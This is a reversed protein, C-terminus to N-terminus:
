NACLNNPFGLGSCLPCGGYIGIGDCGSGWKVGSSLQTPAQYTDILCSATSPVHRSCCLYQEDPDDAKYISGRSKIWAKKSGLYGQYTTQSGNAQTVRVMCLGTAKQFGYDETLEAQSLIPASVPCLTRPYDSVIAQGGCQLESHAFGYAPSQFASITYDDFSKTDRSDYCNKTTGNQTVETVKYLVGTPANTQYPFVGNERVDECTFNYNPECCYYFAAPAWCSYASSYTMTSTYGSLCTSTYDYCTVYRDGVWANRENCKFGTLCSVESSKGSSSGFDCTKEFCKKCVEGNLGTKTDYGSLYWGNSGSTGCKSVATEYGPYQYCPDQCIGCTLDENDPTKVEYSVAFYKGTSCSTQYGSGCGTIEQCTKTETGVNFHYSDGYALYSYLESVDTYGTACDTPAYCEYISALEPCSAGTPCTNYYGEDNNCVHKSCFYGDGFPCKMRLLNKCEEATHTFGLESCSMIDTGCSFGAQASLPAAVAVSLIVMKKLIKNM